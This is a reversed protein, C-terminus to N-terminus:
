GVKRVYKTKASVEAHVIALEPVRSYLEDWYGYLRYRQQLLADYM